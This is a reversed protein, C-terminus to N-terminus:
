LTPNYKITFPPIPTAFRNARNVAREHLAQNNPRYKAHAANSMARRRNTESLPSQVKNKKEGFILPHVAHALRKNSVM